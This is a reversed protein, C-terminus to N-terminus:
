ERSCRIKQIVKADGEGIELTGATEYEGSRKTKIEIVRQYTGDDRDMVSLLYLEQDNNKYQAVQIKEATDQARDMTLTPQGAIALGFSWSVTADISYMSAEGEAKSECNFGGTAFANQSALTLLTTLSLILTKM